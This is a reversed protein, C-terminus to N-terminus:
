GKHSAVRKKSLSSSPNHPVFKIELEYGAARAYREITSLTPSINSHVNELRSINGKQTNLIAAMQQQSFGASKRLEIMKQRLEYAPKLREFEAKVEPRALAQKKFNNFTPRTM